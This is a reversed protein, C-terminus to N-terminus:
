YERPFDVRTVPQKKTVVRRPVDSDAVPEVIIDKNAARTEKAKMGRAIKRAEAEAKLKTNREGIFEYSKAYIFPKKGFAGGFTSEARMVEGTTYMLELVKRAKNPHVELIDVADYVTLALAEDEKWLGRLVELEKHHYGAAMKASSRPLPTEGNKDPVAFWSRTTPLLLGRDWCAKIVESARQMDLDFNAMLSEVSVFGQRDVLEKVDKWKAM